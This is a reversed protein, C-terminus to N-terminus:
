INEGQITEIINKRSIKRVSYRMIIYLLASVGLVSGVIGQVPLHYRIEIGGTFIHYLLGSLACGLPIGICLAKVGYLISELYVMHNFERGTMGVARLMAFERSRLEMNTTVTNFINTIGILVIVIIFGYLFIAALLSMNNERKYEENLNYLNYTGIGVFNRISRELEDTDEACLYLDVSGTYPIGATNLRDLWEDMRDDDILLCLGRSERKNYFIPYEEAQQAVEISVAVAKEEGNEEDTGESENEAYFRGEIIDGPQYDTMQGLHRVSRGQEGEHFVQYGAWVVAKSCTEEPDLGIKRCYDRYPKKGISVFRVLEKDSGIEANELFDRSYPIRDSDVLFNSRRVINYNEVGPLGALEYATKTMRKVDEDYLTMRIQYGAEDKYISNAKFVLEMFTTMSILTAVSVIISIVTTRYKVKARKLNKYAIVGGIGFCRKIILPCKLKRRTLKVTDQSRIVSIPTLKAARGAAKASSAFISVVSLLTGLLIAPASIAFQVPVELVSEMPGTTTLVIVYTAAIGCFVGLPIGIAAVFLAEYYVMKRRQRKTAGVSALMGYLRLKETLSIVFSNRICFVASVIIILLAALSMSYLLSMAGGERFRMLEWGILTEHEVVDQATAKEEELSSSGYQYLAYAEQPVGLLGATVTERKKLGEATYSAFLNLREYQEKEGMGTVITYGPASYQEITVYAPRDIIGVVRYTRETTDCLREQGSVYPNSQGLRSGDDKIRKGIQLTLTDGTKIDVGANTRIHNAIVAEEETEPMRGETLHLAATEWGTEDFGLIFLYPKDPNMSGPLQAYGLEVNCGLKEVYRNNKFYKYNEAEVGRFLYHFDGNKDKEYQILSARLSEAMNAVATLLATTLIVGIITAATRKKNQKLSQLTVKKIVSM